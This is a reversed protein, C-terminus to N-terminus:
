QGFPVDSEGRAQIGRMVVLLGIAILVTPALFRIWGGFVSALVLFFVLGIGGVIGAAVLLGRASRDMLLYLLYLGLGIAIPELAWMYAWSGWDGTLNQYLLILGNMTVITGPVALGAVNARRDWWIIIPLWLAVGVLLVIAPWLARWGLPIGLVSGIGQTVQALLFLGGFGLLMIGTYLSGRNKMDM